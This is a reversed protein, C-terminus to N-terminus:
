APTWRYIWTETLPKGDGMLRAHLEVLTNNQPDLELSVRWGGIEPLAEAVANVIQGKSCGNELVPPAEAKWKTLADGVFDIVFQRNKANWSLGCRTAVVKGLPPNAPQTWCWHLRYNRLYEGKARLTDSPRWFTVINDNVEKRSPIEVLEVIGKAWDGIPEVWLSPRKEYHAGADEYDAFQRERQMLGFGRPSVDSFASIQLDHPNALPRWIYEDQGTHLALGSADHVANRYDDFGYRDNTEFLFMGTLPALGAEAIDVRPYLATETDFV